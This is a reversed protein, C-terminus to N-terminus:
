GMLSLKESDYKMSLIYKLFDNYFLGIPLMCPDNKYDEYIGPTKSYAFTEDTSNSKLVSIILGKDHLTNDRIITKLIKDYEEKRKTTPSKLFNQNNEYISVFGNKMENIIKEMDINSQIDTLKNFTRSNMSLLHTFEHPLFKMLFEKHYMPNIVFDNEIKGSKFIRTSVYHLAKSNNRTNRDIVKYDLGLQYKDNLEKITKDTSELNITKHNGLKETFEDVLRSIFNCENGECVQSAIESVGYIFQQQPDIANNKIRDIKDFNLYLNTKPNPQRFDVRSFILPPKKTIDKYKVEKIDKLEFNFDKFICNTLWKFNEALPKDSILLSLLEKKFTTLQQVAEKDLFSNTCGSFSVIDKKLNKDNYDTISYNPSFCKSKLNQTSLQAPVIIM